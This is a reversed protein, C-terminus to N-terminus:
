IKEWCTSPFIIPSVFSHEVDSAKVVNVGCVIKQSNVSDQYVLIKVKKEILFYIELPFLFSDEPRRTGLASLHPASSFLQWIIRIM